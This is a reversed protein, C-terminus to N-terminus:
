KRIEVIVDNSRNLNKRYYEKIYPHTPYQKDTKFQKALEILSM